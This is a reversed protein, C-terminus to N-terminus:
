KKMDETVQMRSMAQAPFIPVRNEAYYGITNVATYTEASSGHVKAMADFQNKFGDNAKAEKEILNVFIELGVLNMARLYFDVNGMGALMNKADIEKVGEEAMKISVDDGIKEAEERVKDWGEYIPNNHKEGRATRMGAVLNRRLRIVNVLPGVMYDKIKGTELLAEVFAVDSKRLEDDKDKVGVTVEGDIGSAGGDSM